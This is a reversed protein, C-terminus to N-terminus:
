KKRYTSTSYSTFTFGSFTDVNNFFYESNIERAEKETLGCEEEDHVNTQINLFYMQNLMQLCPLPLFM